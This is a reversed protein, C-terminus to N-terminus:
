PKPKGEEICDSGEIMSETIPLPSNTQRDYLNHSFRFSEEDFLELGQCEYCRVVEIDPCTFDELDGLRVLQLVSCHKCRWEQYLNPVLPM